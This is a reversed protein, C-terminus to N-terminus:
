SNVSHLAPLLFSVFILLMWATSLVMGIIAYQSGLLQGQSNRIHELSKQGSVLGLIWAFGCSFLVMILPNRTTFFNNFSLIWMTGASFPGLVGFVMSTVALKSIRQEHSEATSYTETITEENVM